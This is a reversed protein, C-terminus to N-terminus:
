DHPVERRTLAAAAVAALLSLVLAVDLLAPLEQLYSLLLLLGVGGTGLLQVSLMRDGLTPGLLARVVGISLALLLSLLALLLWPSFDVM